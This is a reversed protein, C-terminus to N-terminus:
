ARQEGAVHQHGVKIVDSVDALRDAAPLVGAAQISAQHADDVLQSEVEVAVGLM